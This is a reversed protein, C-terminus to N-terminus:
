GHCLAALMKEEILNLQEYRSHVWKADELETEMLVRLSPIEVEVPLVAETGYVLAYSTAGTSTRVSTRYAHLAFPLKEHWDKYVETMKEVIKKINKNAAEVAGNMKPCYTTSNHHKIKFKACIDNVMVGNLNSANDTIIREPLGYQCIIERQIFRYVVKQTVNAYSAAKVWKTIYDIAVLIFRHGNSAKPTILGIVDMGWMSFPWPATFVHLPAPPAHIRDAYVQCKHCKRAFNICDDVEEKVNLYHASVERVKLDFPGVDAAEKIRFMARMQCIVLTTDGYVDIVDAKMEIAAQLGMVLVEYETINNTCNFNLRATAPYYKGNLSVLVAGIGHGLANSTGDFYMEM